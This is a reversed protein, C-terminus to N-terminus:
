KAQQGIGLASQIADCQRKAFLQVLAGIRGSDAEELATIYEKRDSDRIVLPFLGVKIFVLSALARAIRGNGDQFPHIQTFRHHLWASLIEPAMGNKDYDLYLRVLQEMEDQVLEPPCYEHIGGDPRKPNNPQEKYKGKLLNIRVPQGEPTIAEIHDQHTTLKEHMARIFHESFAREGKVFSFLDEVTGRQDEIMKAINDAEDPKIGSNHSIISADIGQEILIETVGRDWTYLREIIGTEIAWERLMKKIFDSYEASNELAGKKELWRKHLTVLESSALADCEQQPPLGEITLYQMAPYYAM